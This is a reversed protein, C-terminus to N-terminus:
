TATLVANTGAPLPFSLEDPVGSLQITVEAFTLGPLFIVVMFSLVLMALPATKGAMKSGGIKGRGM